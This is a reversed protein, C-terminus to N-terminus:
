SIYGVFFMWHNHLIHFANVRFTGSTPRSVDHKSTGRLLFGVRTGACAYDQYRRPRTGAHTLVPSAPDDMPAPTRITESPSVVPCQTRPAEPISTSRVRLQYVRISVSDHRVEPTRVAVIYESPLRVMELFQRTALVLDVLNTEPPDRTAPGPVARIVGLLDGNMDQLVRVLWHLTGFLLLCEAVSSYNTDSM